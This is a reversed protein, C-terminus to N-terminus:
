MNWVPKGDVMLLLFCRWINTLRNSNGAAPSSSRMWALLLYNQSTIHEHYHVSTGDLVHLSIFLNPFYQM